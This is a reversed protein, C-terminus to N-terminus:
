WHTILFPTKEGKNMQELKQWTRSSRNRNRMFMEDTDQVVIVRQAGANQSSLPVTTADSRGASSTGQLPATSLETDIRANSSSSATKQVPRPRPRPRPRADAM